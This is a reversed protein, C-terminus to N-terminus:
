VVDRWSEDQCLNLSFSIPVFILIDKLIELNNLFNRHHEDQAWLFMYLVPIVETPTLTYHLRVKQILFILTKDEM